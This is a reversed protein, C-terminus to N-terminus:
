TSSRGFKDVGYLVNGQDLWHNLNGKGRRQSMDINQLPMFRTGQQANQM